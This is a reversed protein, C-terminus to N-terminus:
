QDLKVLRRTQVTSGLRARVFYVGAKVSHRSEDTGDWTWQWAGPAHEGLVALKVRRGNVDFVEMEPKTAVPVTFHVAVSSGFPNPQIARIAASLDVQSQGEGGPLTVVTETPEPCDPECDEEKPIWVRILATDVVTGSGNCGTASVILRVTRHGYNNYQHTFM